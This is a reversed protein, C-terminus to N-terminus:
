IEITIDIDGWRRIILERSNSVAQSDSIDIPHCQTGTAQALSNGAKQDIDTFAVKCGQSAFLRILATARDSASASPIKIFVRSGELAKITDPCPLPPRVTNGSARRASLRGARYDDMRKELYNDAM